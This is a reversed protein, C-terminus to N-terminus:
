PKALAEDRLPYAARLRHGLTAMIAQRKAESLSGWLGIEDRTRGCGECLGTAADLICLKTCPSSARPAVPQIM